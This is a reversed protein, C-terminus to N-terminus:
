FRQNATNTQRYAESFRIVIFLVTSVSFWGMNADRRRRRLKTSIVSQEWNVNARSAM